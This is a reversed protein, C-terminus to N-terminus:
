VLHQAFERSLVNRSLWKKKPDVRLELMGMAM